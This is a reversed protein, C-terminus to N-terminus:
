SIQRAEPCPFPDVKQLHQQAKDHLTMGTVLAERDTDSMVVRAGTQTELSVDRFDENGIASRPNSSEETFWACLEAPHM